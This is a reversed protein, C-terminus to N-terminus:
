LEIGTNYTLQTVGVEETIVARVPKLIGPGDDAVIVTVVEMDRDHEAIIEVRPTDSRAHDIANEVFHDIAEEFREDGRITADDATDVSEPLREFLQDFRRRKASLKTQTRRLATTDSLSAVVGGAAGSLVSLRIEGISVTQVTLSARSM